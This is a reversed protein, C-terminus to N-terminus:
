NLQLLVPPNICVKMLAKSDDGTWQTFKRGEKFRRLGPFHPVLALRHTLHTRSNLADGSVYRRDIDDMAREGQAKGHTLHLYEEVWTVLHDKFGGKIIQHLIDPTIM